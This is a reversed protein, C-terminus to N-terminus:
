YPMCSKQGRPTPPTKRRSRICSSHEGTLIGSQKLLLEKNLKINKKIDELVFQNIQSRLCATSETNKYKVQADACHITPCSRFSHTVDEPCVSSNTKTNGEPLM